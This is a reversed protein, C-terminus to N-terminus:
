STKRRRRLVAGAAVALAAFIGGNPASRGPMRCGCGDDDDDDGNDGGGLGGVGLGGAGGVSTAGGRGGAATGGAAAGARGGSSAGARAVSGGSGAVTNAGGDGGAGGVGPEPQPEGGSGAESPDPGPNRGGNNGPRGGNSGPRGGTTSPTGGNSSPVGGFGASEDGGEGGAGGAGGVPTGPTGGGSVAGAEGSAGVTPAGGSGSVGGAGGEGSAGDDPLSGPTLTLGSPLGDTVVFTTSETGGTLEGAYWAAASNLATGVRALADPADGIAGVIAPSYVQHAATTRWGVSDVVTAGAPLELTGDNTDDYDTNVVIPNTESYVLLVTASSIPNDYGYDGDANSVVTTAANGPTHGTPKTIMLLGNTGFTCAAGCDAGLNVVFDATGAAAGDGGEVVVVYYGTLNGAPTGTLEIYQHAISGTPPDVKIESLMISPVLPQEFYGVGEGNDGASCAAFTGTVLAGVLAARQVRTLSLRSMQRRGKM